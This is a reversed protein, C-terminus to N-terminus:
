DIIAYEGSTSLSECDSHFYVSWSYESVVGCVCGSAYAEFAGHCNSVDVVSMEVSASSCCCGDCLLGEVSAHDADFGSMAVTLVLSMRLMMIRTLAVASVGDVVVGPVVVSVDFDSVDHVADTVFLICDVHETEVEVPVLGRDPRRSAFKSDCMSYGCEATWVSVCSTGVEHVHDTM